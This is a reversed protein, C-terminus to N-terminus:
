RSAAPRHACVVADEEDIVGRDEAARLKRQEVDGLRTAILARHREKLVARKAGRQFCSADMHRHDISSRRESGDLLSARQGTDARQEADDRHHTSQSARRGIGVDEVRVRGLRHDDRGEGADARASAHDPVEPVNEAPFVEAPRVDPDGHQQRVPEHRTDDRVRLGGGICEDRRAAIRLANADDVIADVGSREIRQSVTSTLPCTSRQTNRGIGEHDAAEAAQMGPLSLMDHKIGHRHQRIRVGDDDAARQEVSVGAVFCRQLRTCGHRRERAAHVHEARPAVHWRQHRCAVHDHM